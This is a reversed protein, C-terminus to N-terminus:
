TTGLPASRNRRQRLVLIGSLGTAVLLLSPPEPVSHLDGTGTMEVRLATPSQGDQSIIFVLSNIGDVFGTTVSFPAFGLQFQNFATTYGLSMGNILIDMGENDTQWGGTIVVSNLDFGSLDFTTQYIYTGPYGGLFSNNNPGIWASYPNDGSYPPIPPGGASTRIRIQSTGDPVSILTYHPDGITGDLLPTGSADVGTNYLSTITTATAVEGFCLYSVLVAGAILLQKKM